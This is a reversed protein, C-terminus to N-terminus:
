SHILLIDLWTIRFHACTISILLGFSGFSCDFRLFSRALYDLRPAFLMIIWILPWLISVPLLYDLHRRLIMWLLLWLISVAVLYGLDVPWIMRILPWHISVPLLCALDAPWTMGILPWLISVGVLYDLHGAFDDFGSAFFGFSPAFDDL